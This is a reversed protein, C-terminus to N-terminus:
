ASLGSRLARLEEFIRELVKEKGSFLAEPGMANLGSFPAEYLADETMVGRSTLQEVVLEVFRIQKSNLSRDSLFESFPEQAAKRDLGVLSRVFYALPPSGSRELLGGLLSKGDEEGIEALARELERLDAETLPQNRRLRHIVLHDQHNRLFERVKKEYQPGTMKPVHVTEEEHIALVEDQFNSYVMVKKKQDLLAMLSRLRLRLEELGQLGIGEWFGCEQLSALYALQKQVAPISAKEELLSALEMVRGRLKEFLGADGQVHALQLRLAMRDFLRAEIEDVELESPLGAVRRQLHDRDGESLGDWAEPKQFQEVVELQERVLFNQPNMAMVEGYLDAKLGGELANDPDWKSDQQLHGLLQVRHSFLQAGLPVAGRAEIGSPNERFYRFNFCFDFVRFDAKDEGPGFLDPCLRTGRGIMQWFKIKSYVPKFFVLNAVETVDIGTDLM